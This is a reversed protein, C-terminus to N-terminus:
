LLSKLVPNPIDKVLFSWLNGLGSLKSQCTTKEVSASLDQNNQTNDTWEPAFFFKVWETSYSPLFVSKDIAQYKLAVLYDAAM